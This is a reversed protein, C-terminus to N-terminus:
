IGSKRIVAGVTAFLIKLDLLFSHNKVYYLEMKQREGDEYLANNRAYAQWYGTLGPKVSLLRVGKEGPYYTLLEKEMIPRPGVFSLEGKLINILQPLEDLSTRRLFNGIKTIRPDNDVKFEKSYQALQEPTLMDELKDANVRMSRFKYIAIEAGHFGVRRHKYFVPGGDERKVLIAVALLVPSLIILALVSCIVDFVRKFFLYIYKRKGVTISTEDPAATVPKQELKEALTGTIVPHELVAASNETDMSREEKEPAATETARKMISRTNRVTSATTSAMTNEM